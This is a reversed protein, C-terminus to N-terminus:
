QAGAPLEVCFGQRDEAADVHESVDHGVVSVDSIIQASASDRDYECATEGPTEIGVFEFRPQGNMVPPGDCYMM